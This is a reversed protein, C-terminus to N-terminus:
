LATRVIPKNVAPEAPEYRSMLAVVNEAEDPTDTLSRVVRAAMGSLTAGDSLSLLPLNIGIRAEVSLRLEVAMLSDMGLEALPRTPDIREASLKLIGAVEEVLLGLVLARAEEPARDALLARLDIDAADATRGDMVENFMATKLLPLHERAAGWRLDAYGLVPHGDALLAPLADLAEAARLHASGLRRLLTESVENQRALTGTDGIPGWAIALAPLGEAHRREAIAELTANAAVYNAQGPNGLATTVSSFLLFLEIPDPRTLRDLLSAGTLKPALVAAFRSADLHPLLADDLVMAAHVVGAIPPMTARIASLTTDLADADAVDCAYARVELGEAGLRSIVATAGQTM